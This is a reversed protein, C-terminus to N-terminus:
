SPENLFHQTAKIIREQHIPTPHGNTKRNHCQLCVIMINDEEFAFDPYKSKELLHDFMYSKMESGLNANCSQCVHPQKNWIQRYFQEYQEVKSPQSKLLEQRKKSVRKLPSRKAKLPVRKLPTRKLM